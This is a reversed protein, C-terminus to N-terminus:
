RARRRLAACGAFDFTPPCTSTRPTRQQRPAAPATIAPRDIDGPQVRHVREVAHRVEGELRARQVLGSGLQRHQGDALHHGAVVRRRRTASWAPTSARTVPMRAWASMLMSATNCRSASSTPSPQAWVSRIMRVWSEMSAWMFAANASMCASLGHQRRDGADALFLQGSCATVERVRPRGVSRLRNQSM